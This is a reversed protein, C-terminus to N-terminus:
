LCAICLPATVVDYIRIHTKSVNLALKIRKEVAGYPHIIRGSFNVSPNYSLAHDNQKPPVANKKLTLLGSWKGSLLLPSPLRATKM